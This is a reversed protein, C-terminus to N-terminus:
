EGLAETMFDVMARVKGLRAKKPHYLLFLSMEPGSTVVMRADELIVEALTGDDLADSVGWLPLFALGEGALTARLMLRAHNTVLVLRRPVTVVDGNPRAALWSSVGGPGRIGIAAHEEVEAVTEPRGNESLYEPSAVLVFRHAHLRRAVLYDPPDATARLAIDIDGTSLDLYRDTLEVDCVIRPHAARFRELVSFLRSEGYGPLATLRLTGSAERSHADVLADAAALARLPAAVEGRYWEGTETLRVQRTTRQVLPAGLDKELAKISRSVTSPPVGFHQATGKFSLTDGLKLFFRIAQLKDVSDEIASNVIVIQV